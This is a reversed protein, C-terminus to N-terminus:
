GLLRKGKRTLMWVRPQKRDPCATRLSCRECSISCGRVVAQLYGREELEELMRGVLEPNVGLQRALAGISETGSDAALRLLSELV